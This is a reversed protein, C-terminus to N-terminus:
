SFTSGLNLTIPSKAPSSPATEFNTPLYGCSGETYVLKNAHGLRGGPQFRRGSVRQCQDEVRTGSKRSAIM